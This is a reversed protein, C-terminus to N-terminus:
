IEQDLRWVTDCHACLYVYKMNTEDYRLYVIDNDAKDSHSVCETNPCPINNIRPLTPDLKTYENIINNFNQEGKKFSVKSISVNDVTITQDENGCNRCYYVLKDQQNFESKETEQVESEDDDKSSSEINASLRIYYMNNCQYCFHM